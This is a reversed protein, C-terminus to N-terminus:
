RVRLLTVQRRQDGASLRCFLVGAAAVEGREDRGDWPVAHFGVGRPEDLLTRVRRGALDYLEVRARAPAALAFAITATGAHPNPQARLFLGRGGGDEIGAAEPPVSAFAHDTDTATPTSVQLTIASSDGPSAGSPISVLVPVAVTTHPPITLPTPDVSTTWGLDSGAQPTGTFPAFGTNTVDFEVLV